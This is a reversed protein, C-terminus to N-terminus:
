YGCVHSNALNRENAESKMGNHDPFISQKTENM